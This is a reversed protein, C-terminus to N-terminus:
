WRTPVSTSRHTAGAVQDNLERLLGGEKYDDCDIDIYGSESHSRPVIAFAKGNISTDSAIKMLATAADEITAFEFGGKTLSEEVDPGLIKTKVFRHGHADACRAIPQLEGLGM